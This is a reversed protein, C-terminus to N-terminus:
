DAARSISTQRGGFIDRASVKSMEALPWSTGLHVPFGALMTTIHQNEHESTHIIKRSISTLRSSENFANWITVM